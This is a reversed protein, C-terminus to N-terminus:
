LIDLLLTNTTRIVSEMVTEPIQIAPLSSDVMIREGLEIEVTAPLDRKISGCNRPIPVVQRNSCITDRESPVLHDPFTSMRPM